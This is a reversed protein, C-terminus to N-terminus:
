QLCELVVIDQSKKKEYKCMMYFLVTFTKHRDLAAQDVIVTHMDKKQKFRKTGNAFIIGTLASRKHLLAM